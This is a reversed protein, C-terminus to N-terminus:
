PKFIPVKVCMVPDNMVDNDKTPTEIYQKISPFTSKPLNKMKKDIYVKM